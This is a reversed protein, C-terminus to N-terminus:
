VKGPSNPAPQTIPSIEGQQRHGPPVAPANMGRQSPNPPATRSPVMDGGAPISVKRSPMVKNNMTM